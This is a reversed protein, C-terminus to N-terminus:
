EDSLLDNSELHEQLRKGIIKDVVKLWVNMLSIPRYYAPNDKKKPDKSILCIHAHSLASPVNEEEWIHTVLLVTMTATIDKGRRLFETALGDPGPAKGVPLAYMAELIEDEPPPQSRDHQRNIM